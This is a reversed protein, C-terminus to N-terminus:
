ILKRLSEMYAQEDPMGGSQQATWLSEELRDMIQHQLHHEDAYKTLM